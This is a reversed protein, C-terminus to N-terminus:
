GPFTHTGRTGAAPPVQNSNQIESAQRSAALVLQDQLLERLQLLLPAAAVVGPPNQEGGDWRRRVCVIQGVQGEGAEAQQRSPPSGQPPIGSRGQAPDPSGAIGSM